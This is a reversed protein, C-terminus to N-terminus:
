RVVGEPHASSRGAPPGRRKRRAEEVFRSVAGHDKIGVEREVGSSVDVVEPGFRAVAEAVTDPTLGGALIFDLGGRVLARVAEPDLDLRVGGGGTVGERWGELLIGDAVEGYRQVAREVDATSRARVAKWLKWPGRARLEALMSPPEEGHLQIVGAGIARAAADASAADEDVLVAVTTVSTGEALAVAASPEVSRSFGASLVIGMYHAGSRDVVIADDRRTVGCIKVRPAEAL